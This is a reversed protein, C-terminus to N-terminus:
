AAAPEAPRGTRGQPDKWGLAPDAMFSELPTHTLHNTYNSIVKAAIIAVVELVQAKSFGAAIFADVAADGAFGRTEVVTEAFRRLAELRPDAIPTLNRLAAIVDEPVGAQRSLFTHGATCYECGHFVNIAQYVVQQEVPSFTAETAILNFLDDYGKLAVPSEALTGQLKPIFGWANKVAVLRDKSGAPATEPTHVTYSTM